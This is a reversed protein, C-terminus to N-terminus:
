GCHFLAHMNYQMTNYLYKTICSIHAVVPILRIIRKYLKYQIKCFLFYKAIHVHKFSLNGVTCVGVETM